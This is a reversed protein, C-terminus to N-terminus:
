FACKTLEQWAPVGTKHLTYLLCTHILQTSPLLLNFPDKLRNVQLEAFPKLCLRYGSAPLPPTQTLMVQECLESLIGSLTREIVSENHSM